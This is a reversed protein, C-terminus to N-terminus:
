PLFARWFRICTALFFGLYLAEASFAVHSSPLGRASCGWGGMVPTSQKHRKHAEHLPMDVFGLRPALSICIRVFLASLLAGGIWLALYVVYWNM